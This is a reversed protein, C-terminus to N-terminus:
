ATDACGSITHSLKRDLIQPQPEAAEDHEVADRKRHLARLKQRQDPRIAGALRAHEVADAADIAACARDAEAPAVDGAQRRMLHRPEPDGAGELVAFQKRLHAHEIIQEGAAVRIRM